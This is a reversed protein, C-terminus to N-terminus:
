APVSHRRRAITCWRRRCGAPRPQSSTSGCRTAASVGAAAARRARQSLPRRRRGGRAGPLGAFRSRGCWFMSSVYRRACSRRTEIPVEKFRLETAWERVIGELTGKGSALTVTASFDSDVNNLIAEGSLSTDLQRLADRFSELDETHLAVPLLVHFPASMGVRLEVEGALFNADIGTIGDPHAYREVRLALRCGDGRLTAEVSM